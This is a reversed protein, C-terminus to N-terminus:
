GTITFSQWVGLLCIDISFEPKPKSIFESQRLLKGIGEIEERTYSPLKIEDPIMENTIIGLKDRRQHLKDM